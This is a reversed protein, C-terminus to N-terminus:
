PMKTIAQWRISSPRANSRFCLQMSQIRIRISIHQMSSTKPFNQRYTSLLNVSPTL